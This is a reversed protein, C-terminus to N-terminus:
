TLEATCGEPAALDLVLEAPAFDSIGSIGPPPYYQTIVHPMRTGAATLSYNCVAISM